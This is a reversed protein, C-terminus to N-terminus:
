GHFDPYSRYYFDLILSGNRNKLVLFCGFRYSCCDSKYFPVLCMSEVEEPFLSRPCKRNISSYCKLLVTRLALITKNNFYDVRWNYKIIDCFFHLQQWFNRSRSSSTVLSVLSISSKFPFCFSWSNLCASGYDSISASVKRRSRLIVSGAFSEKGDIASLILLALALSDMSSEFHEIIGPRFSLMWLCVAMM